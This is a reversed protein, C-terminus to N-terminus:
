TSIPRASSELCCLAIAIADAVDPPHPLKKLGLRSMITHQMQHKSARGSGSVARKVRSAPFSRVAVKEHAAALFLVGRAHSM